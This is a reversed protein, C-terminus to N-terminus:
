NSLDGLYDIIKSYFPQYPNWEYSNFSNTHWLLVFKGEYKKVLDILLCIQSYFDEPTKALDSVAGEMCTLPLELLDLPERKLFDFVRFPFCAGCRFGFEFNFGLTSDQVINNQDEIEWTVPPSFCLYHQRSEHIPGVLDTLNKLEKSFIEPNNYSYFSGHLGILHGRFKINELISVVIPNSIDYRFDYSSGRTDTKSRKKQSLFYFHSKVKIKESQDMLFNFNDYNDKKIGSKVKFYDILSVLILGPKKRLVIDGAFIRILKFINKYRIAEDVDHTLVAEFKMKKRTGSYGLFELMKWLMEIYENVVPRRHIKNRISLSLHEPFRGYEDKETIVYEEWRTLMFFISSMVDIKCRIINPTSNQVVIEPIGFIVPIDKEITFPNQSYSIKEPLNSKDLYNLDDKFFSFFHDELIIKNNNLLLIEYDPESNIVITYDLGLFNGFVTDLVYTRERRFGAPIKIVM